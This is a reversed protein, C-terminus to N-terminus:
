GELLAVGVRHGLRDSVLHEIRNRDVAVEFFRPLPQAGAGM